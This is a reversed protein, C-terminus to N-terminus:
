NLTLLTLRDQELNLEKVAEEILMDLDEETIKIGKKNIYEIVAKKKPLNLIGAQQLQEVAYVASRVISKHKERKEMTTKNLYYPVIAVTIITGLLSIVALIIKVLGDDM